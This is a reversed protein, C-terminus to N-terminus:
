GIESLKKLLKRDLISLRRGEMHIINENCFERLVRVTNEESIACMEGLERRTIGMNFISGGHLDSLYLLNEALRGRAQKQNLTIIKHLISATSRAFAQNLKLFFAHNEKYLQQVLELDIMCIKSEELTTVTYCYKESEFFSLLGIYSSPRMIYMIINRHNIGEIYLKASGSVLYIAHTVDSGQKCVTEHKKYIAQLPNFDDFHLGSDRISNYIDCRATCNDCNVKCSFKMIFQYLQLLIFFNILIM